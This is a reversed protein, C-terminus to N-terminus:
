QILGIDPPINEFGIQKAPSQACFVARNGSITVCPDAYLSGHEVDENVWDQWTAGNRRTLTDLINYDLHFQGSTSWMLNNALINTQKPLSLRLSLGGPRTTIIINRQLNNTEPWDEHNIPEALKPYKGLWIPNKNVQAFRTKVEARAPRNDIWLAYSDTYILNNEILNDRGGGLQIAMYGANNFLNGFISFGSVTDDLYVGRVGDPQYVAINNAIDVSKLGYGFLDHISNYRIINGRYTWDRGAYVAGCDSSQECVHHIENKEFLHDNGSIYVGAGPGREILNHTVHTGVGAIEIAPTNTLIVTGFNHIHTNHILNNAAQLTGRDGGGLLIGGEGVDHIHSNSITINSSNKTEIARGGINNIEIGDMVLNSAKEIGIAVGASYRFALNKFSIYNAGEIKILNQLGSVIIEKIEGNDPPIFLLKSNTQDYFWESPADLESLINQVYFRRGSALPYTTNSALTIQNQNEDIASLPIFQDFWDNGALIHVQGRSIEGAAQPLKEMVSFSTKETLPLKIHAWDTNPWRALHLSQQNIYLQFGPIDGQTRYTQLYKIKDLALGTTPCGWVKASDLKCNQLSIGGSLVAQGNESQWRIERGAFGSDRLDFELTKQLPYVGSQIHVTVSEKFQGNKKLDRIAQQARALTQFPGTAGANASERSLGNALDNGTPAVYFDKSIVSASYCFLLITFTKKHRM